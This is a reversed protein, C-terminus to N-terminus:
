REGVYEELESLERQWFPRNPIQPHPITLKADHVSEDGYRVLDIDLTREGWPAGRERGAQQEIAHFHNLLEHPRMSTRLLLMQNLYKRQGDPGIPDTEEVATEAACSTEPLDRLRRKALRLYHERDGMNSGLAVFAWEPM